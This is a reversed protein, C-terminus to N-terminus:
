TSAVADFDFFPDGESEDLLALEWEFYATYWADREPGFEPPGTRDVVAGAYQPDTSVLDETVADIGGDLFWVDDAEGDLHEAVFERDGILVLRIGEVALDELHERRAHVSGAVHGAAYTGSSRVDVLRASGGARWTSVEDWTVRRDTPVPVTVQDVRVLDQAVDHVIVSLPGDHLYRLWQVTNAARVLDDTDVLVVHSRRVAIFDDTAQVM